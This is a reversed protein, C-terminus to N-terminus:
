TAFKNKLRLFPNEFFRRSLYSVLVALMGAVVFRLWLAQWKSLNLIFDAAVYQAYRDYGWFILPHVLYLGYSIEGFFLLIRPTVFLRWRSTGFLLFLILLGGSAFNCITWLFTAGLVRSRSVIGYPLGVIAVAGVLAFLMLSSHLFKRRDLQFERM